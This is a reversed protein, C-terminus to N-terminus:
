DLPELRITSVVKASSSIKPSFGIVGSESGEKQGKAGSRNSM